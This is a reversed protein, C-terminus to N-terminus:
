SPKRISPDPLAGEGISKEPRVREMVLGISYLRYLHYEATDRHSPFVTM